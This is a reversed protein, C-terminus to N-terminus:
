LLYYILLAVILSGILLVGGIKRKKYFPADTKWNYPIPSKFVGYALFGIGVFWSLVMLSGLFIKM